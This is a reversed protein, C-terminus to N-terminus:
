NEETNAHADRTRWVRGRKLNKEKSGRELSTGHCGQAEDSAKSKCKYNGATARIRCYSYPSVECADCPFGWSHTLVENKYAITLWSEWVKFYLNCDRQFNKHIHKMKSSHWWHRDIAKHHQESEQSINKSFNKWFLVRATAAINPSITLYTM